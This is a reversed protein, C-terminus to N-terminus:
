VFFTKVELRIRLIGMFEFVGFEFQSLSAWDLMAKDKFCVMPTWNGTRIELQYKWVAYQGICLVEIQSEHYLWSAVFVSVIDIFKMISWTVIMPHGFSLYLFWFCIIIIAPIFEILGCYFYIRSIFIILYLWWDALYLAWSKKM